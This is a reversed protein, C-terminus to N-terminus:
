SKVASTDTKLLLKIKYASEGLKCKDTAVGLLDHRSSHVKFEERV